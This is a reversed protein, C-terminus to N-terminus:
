HSSVFGLAPTCIFKSSVTTSVVVMVLITTIVHASYEITKPQQGTLGNHFCQIYSIDICFVVNIKRWMEWM